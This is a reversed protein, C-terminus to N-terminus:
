FELVVQKKLEEWNKIKHYLNTQKFFRAEYSLIFEKSLQEPLIAKSNYNSLNRKLSLSIIRIVDHGNCLHALDCDSIFNNLEKLLNDKKIEICVKGNCFNFISDVLKEYGLFKLDSISIFHTFDISKGEPISSKFKLGLKNRENLWKLYGLPKTIEFLYSRFENYGGYKERLKEVQIYNNLVIEFCESKILMIEIDHYDTFFINENNLVENNLERFDSDLIGFVKEFNRKELEDLVDVVNEKGFAIEITCVENDIFKNFLKYDDKGEVIVYANNSNAKILIANAIRQPTIYEEM